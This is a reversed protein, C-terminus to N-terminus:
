LTLGLARAAEHILPYVENYNADPQKNAAEALGRLVAAVEANRADFADCLEKDRAAFWQTQADIHDLLDQRDYIADIVMQENLFRESQIQACVLAHNAEIEDLRGESLLGAADTGAAAPPTPTDPNSPTM